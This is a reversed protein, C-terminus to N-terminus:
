ADTFIDRDSLLYILKDFLECPGAQVKMASGGGSSNPFIGKHLDQEKARAPGSFAM